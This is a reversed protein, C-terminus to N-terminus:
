AQYDIINSAKIDDNSIINSAVHPESDIINSSKRVLPATEEEDPNLIVNSSFAAQQKLRYLAAKRRNKRVVFFLLASGAAMACVTLGTYLADANLTKSDGSGTHSLGAGDTIEPASLILDETDGVSIGHLALHNALVKTFWGKQLTSSVDQAAKGASTTVSFSVEAGAAAALLRRLSGGIPKVSLIRVAYLNVHLSSAIAM